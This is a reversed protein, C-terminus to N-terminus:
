FTSTPRQKEGGGAGQGAPATRGRAVTPTGNSRETAVKLSPLFDGWQRAAHEDLPVLRDGESKVLAARVPKGDKLVPKGDKDHREGITIEMDKALTGLVGPKFGHIEAASRIVEAKRFTGVEAAHQKGEDIAKRIEGPEGLQRYTGWHKADDGTLVITGEGPVKAGLDRNKDRLSYNEGLLVLLAATPDGHKAVLGEAAKSLDTAKAGGKDDGGKNEGGKNESGAGGEGGATNMLIRWPRM